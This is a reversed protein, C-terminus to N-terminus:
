GIEAASSLGHPDQEPRHCAAPPAGLVWGHRSGSRALFTASRPWRVASQRRAAPACRAWAPRRPRTDPWRTWNRGHVAPVLAFREGHVRWLAWPPVVVWSGCQWCRADPRTSPCSRNARWQSPASTENTGSTQIQVAALDHDPLHMVAVVRVMRDMQYSSCCQGFPNSCESGFWYQMTVIAGREFRCRHQCHQVPQAHLGRVRSGTHAVVVGVRLAQKAGGLVARLEGGLTEGIQLCRAGPGGAEDMPVVDLMPVAADPIHTRRLAM